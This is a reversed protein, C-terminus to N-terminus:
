GLYARAEEGPNPLGAVRWAQLCGGFLQKVQSRSLTSNRCIRRMPPIAGLRLYRDRIFRIVKWHTESLPGVGDLDAILGAIAENWGAPDLLFGDEDFLPYGDLGGEVVSQVTGM